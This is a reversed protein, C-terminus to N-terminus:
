FFQAKINKVVEKALGKTAGISSGGIAGMVVKGDMKRDVLV